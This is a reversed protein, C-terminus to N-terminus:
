PLRQRQPCGSPAYWRTHVRGRLRNLSPLCTLILRSNAAGAREDKEGLHALLSPELQSADLMTDSNNVRDTLGAPVAYGRVFTARGDGDVHQYVVHEAFPRVETIPQKGLVLMSDSPVHGTPIEIAITWQSATEDSLGQRVVIARAYSDLVAAAYDQPSRSEVQHWGGNYAALAAALDGGSQQVVASLISIGWRLNLSPVLLEDSTPRWELGPGAPMVGMLGVAGMYSVVDEAGDSEHKMVAAIFDPDFGYADSLAGIHTAWRQVSPEWYPSIVLEELDPEGSSSEEVKMALVPQPMLAALLLLLSTILALRGSLHVAM